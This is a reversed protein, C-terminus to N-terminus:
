LRSNFLVVGPPVPQNALLGESILPASDNPVGVTCLSKDNTERFGLHKPESDSIEYSSNKEAM